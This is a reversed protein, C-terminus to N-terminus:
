RACRCKGSCATSAVLMALCCHARAHRSSAANPTAPSATNPIAPSAANPIAPLGRQIHRSLCRGRSRGMCSGRRAARLEREDEHWVREAHKDAQGDGRAQGSTGRRTSPGKTGAKNGRGEGKRKGRKITTRNGRARPPRVPNAQRAAAAGDVARVGEANERSLIRAAAVRVCGRLLVSQECYASCLLPRFGRPAARVLAISCAFARTWQAVPSGWGLCGWGRAGALARADMRAGDLRRPM